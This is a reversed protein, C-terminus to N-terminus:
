LRPLCEGSDTGGFREELARSPDTGAEILAVFADFGALRKKVKEANDDVIRQVDEELLDRTEFLFTKDPSSVLSLQGCDYLQFLKEM